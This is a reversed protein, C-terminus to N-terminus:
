IHFVVPRSYYSWVSCSYMYMYPKSKKRNLFNSGNQLSFKCGTVGSALLFTIYDPFGAADPM